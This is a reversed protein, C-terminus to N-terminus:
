RTQEKEAAIARLANALQTLTAAAADLEEARFPHFMPANPHSTALVGLWVNADRIDAHSVRLRGYDGPVIETRLTMRVPGAPATSPTIDEVLDNSSELPERYKSGNLWWTEYGATAVDHNIKAITHEAKGDRTRYTRGIQLQITM